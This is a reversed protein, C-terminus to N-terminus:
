GNMGESLAQQAIEEVTIGEISSEIYGGNLWFTQEDTDDVVFWMTVQTLEDDINCYGTFEVSHKIGSASEDELNTYNWEPEAFFDEFADGVSVDPYGDVYGEKVINIYKNDNLKISLLLVIFLILIFIMIARLRFQHKKRVINRKAQKGCKPCYSGHKSLESGCYVCIREKTNIQRHYGDYKQVGSVRELEEKVDGQYIYNEITHCCYDGATSATIYYEYTKGNKDVISLKQEYFIKKVPNVFVSQISHYPIIKQRNPVFVGIINARKHEIYIFRRDTCILYTRVGVTNKYLKMGEVACASAYCLISEDEKLIKSLDKSIGYTGYILLISNDKHKLNQLEKTVSARDKM